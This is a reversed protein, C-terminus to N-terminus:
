NPAGSPRAAALRLWQWMERKIEAPTKPRGDTHHREMTQLRMEVAALLAMLEAKQMKTMGNLRAEGADHRRM